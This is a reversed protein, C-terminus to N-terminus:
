SLNPLFSHGSPLGLDSKKSPFIWLTSGKKKKKANPMYILGMAFVITKFRPYV